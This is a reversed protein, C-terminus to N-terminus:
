CTEAMCFPLSPRPVRLSLERIDELAYQIYFMHDPVWGCLDVDSNTRWTPVNTNTSTIFLHFCRNENLSCELLPGQDNDPVGQQTIPL